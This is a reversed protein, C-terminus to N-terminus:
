VRYDSAALRQLRALVESFEGEISIAQDFFHHTEDLAEKLLDEVYSEQSETLGLTVITRSLGEIMEVMQHQGNSRNDRSKDNIRALAGRLEALVGEIGLKQLDREKSADLGGIRIDASEALVALNDRLRGVKEPNDTPLNQVLLSVHAYNLVARSGFEFIRGIDKLTDLVSSQLPSMEGETSLVLLENCGRIQVAGKLGWAKMAQILQRGICDYSHGSASERLFEIVVGLDSMGTMAAFAIKQANSSQDALQRLRDGQDIVGKIKHKLEHVAIPKTVFDDGGAEYAAVREPATDHASVFIVPINGSGPRARFSRCTDYGNIDPMEIDLLLVDFQESSALFDEGGSFETVEYDNCLLRSLIVRQPTNDEIIAIRHKSNM